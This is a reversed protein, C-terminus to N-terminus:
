RLKEFITAAESLALGADFWAKLSPNSVAEGIRRLLTKGKDDAERYRALLYTEDDSLSTAVDETKEHLGSKVSAHMVVIQALSNGIDRADQLKELPYGTVESVRVLLAEEPFVRGELYGLLEIVDIDLRAVVEEITLGSQRIAGAIVIGAAEAPKCFMEGSGTLVWAPAMGARMLMSM